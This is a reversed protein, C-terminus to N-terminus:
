QFYNKNLIEELENSFKKAKEITIQATKFDMKKGYYVISNRKYRFDDFTRFFKENKLFDRIFFGLCIHNRIKYGELLVIAHIKELISTYYIEFVFNANKKNIKKGFVDIRENATKVLSKAKEKDPSIKISENSILCEKWTSSKM